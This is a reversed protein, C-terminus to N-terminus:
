FVPFGDRCCAFFSSCGSVEPEVGASFYTLLAILRTTGVVVHTKPLFNLSNLVCNVYAASAISGPAVVRQGKRVAYLGSADM